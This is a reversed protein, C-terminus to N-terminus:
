EGPKRQDRRTLWAFLLPAAFMVAVVRVVHHVAVFSIEIGLALAVLNMEVLGGPSFALLVAPFSHHGIASLGLAFVITFVLVIGTSGISLVIIWGVEGPSSGLFRCGVITGLIVQAVVVLEAPTEFDSLGTAHIIASAIMPGLFPAAPLRLAYGILIGGGACGLIWLWTAVTTDFISPVDGGVMVAEVPYGFLALLPPISLVVLFIRAAHCLGIRRPDGGNDMGAILMETLGGPMGAFYATPRDFGGVVRLFVVAAWGAAVVFVLLGAITLPWRSAESVFGPTFGSGLLVGIVAVTPARLPDPGLVPARAVAAIMTFFMAGLMWALPVGLLAFVYGGVVAITLAGLVRAFTLM